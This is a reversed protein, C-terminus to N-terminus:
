VRCRPISAIRRGASCGSRNERACGSESCHSNEPIVLKPKFHKSSPGWGIKILLRGLGEHVIPLFLKWNEEIFRTKAEEIPRRDHISEFWVCAAFQAAVKRAKM